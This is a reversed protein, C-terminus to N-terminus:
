REPPPTEPPSPSAPNAACAVVAEYRISPPQIRDPNRRTRLSVLNFGTPCVRQARPALDREIRSATLFEDGFGVGRITYVTAATGDGGACGGLLLPALVPVAVALSRFRHSSATMTGEQSPM